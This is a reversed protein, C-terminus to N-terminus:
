KINFFDSCICQLEEELLQFIKRDLESDTKLANKFYTIIKMIKKKYDENTSIENFLPSIKPGIRNNRYSMKSFFDFSILQEENLMLYKLKMLEGLHKAISVLDTFNNTNKLCHQFIVNKKVNKRKFINILSSLIDCNSFRLKAKSRQKIYNDIEKNSNEKEKLYLINSNPNVGFSSDKDKIYNQYIYSKERTIKESFFTNIIKLKFKMNSIPTVVLRGFIFLFNIIGGLNAFITQIKIYVRNFIKINHSFYIQMLIIQEDKSLSVDTDLNTFGIDSHSKVVDAFIVGSDSFIDNRQFYFDLQKHFSSELAFYRLYPMRKIPNSYNKADVQLTQYYVNLYQNRITQEIVYDPKCNSNMSDNKCVYVKFNLGYIYNESWSGGLLINKEKLCKLQSLYSYELPSNEQTYIMSCNVLEIENENWSQSGNEYIFNSFFVARLSMVSTDDFINNWEDSFFVSLFFDEPILTVNLPTINEESVIVLPNEKKYIDMGLLWANIFIAIYVLISLFGGPISKYKRRGKHTVSIPLSFRDLHKALKFFKM